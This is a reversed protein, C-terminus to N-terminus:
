NASDGQSGTQRKPADTYWQWWALGRRRADRSLWALASLMVALGGALMGADRRPTDRDAVWQRADVSALAVSPESPRYVIKLPMAYRTGPAPAHVGEPMGESDNYEHDTLTTEIRRGDTTRLTVRVEGLVRGIDVQVSDAVTETGTTLLERSFDQRHTVEVLGLGGFLAVALAPVGLWTPGRGPWDVRGAV